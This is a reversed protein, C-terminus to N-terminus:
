SREADVKPAKKPKWPKVGMEELRKQAEQLRRMRVRDLPTKRRRGRPKAPPRPAKKAKAPKKPEPAAPPRPQVAPAAARKRPKREPAAPAPARLRSLEAHDRLMQDLSAAVRAELERIRRAVDQKRRKGAM